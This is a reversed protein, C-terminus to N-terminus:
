FLVSVCACRWLCLYLYMYLCLHLYLCLCVYLYLCVCLCVSVCVCVSVCAIHTGLEFLVPWWFSAGTVYASRGSGPVDVVVQVNLGGRDPQISNTDVLFYRPNRGAIRALDAALGDRFGTRGQELETIFPTSLGEVRVVITQPQFVLSISPTASPTVSPTHSPSPTPSATMTPSPTVSPTPSSTPSPSPTPSASPTTTPSTTHTPTVSPSPTQTPVASPSPTPSPTVSSTPTNSPTPLTSCHAFVVGQVATGTHVVRRNTNDMNLVTVQGTAADTVAILQRLPEVAIGTAAEFGTAVAAVSAASGDLDAAMVATSETWYLAVTRNPHPGVAVDVPAPRDGVVTRLDAGNVSVRRVATRTDAFFLVDLRPDSSNRYFAMGGGAQDAPAVTVAVDAAAGTAADPRGDGDGDTGGGCFPVVQLVDEGFDAVAALCATHDPHFALWDVGVVGDVASVTLNVKNLASQAWQRRRDRPVDADSTPLDGRSGWAALGAPTIALSRPPAAVDRPVVVHLTSLDAVETAALSWIARGDSWWVTDGGADVTVGGRVSLQGADFVLAGTGAQLDLRWLQALDQFATVGAHGGSAVWVMHGAVVLDFPQTIPTSADFPVVSATLTTNTLVAAAFSGHLDVVYLKDSSADNVLLLLQTDNRLAVNRVTASFPVALAAAVLVSTAAHPAPNPGPLAVGRVDVGVYAAPNAPVATFAAVAQAATPHLALGAYTQATAHTSETQDLLNVVPSGSYPAHFLTDTLWLLSATAPHILFGAPATHPSGLTVVVRQRRRYYDYNGSHFTANPVGVAGATRISGRADLWYLQHSAHDLHLISPRPFAPISVSHSSPFHRITVRPRVLLAFAARTLCVPVPKRRM